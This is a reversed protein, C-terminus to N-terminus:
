TPPKEAMAETRAAQREAQKLRIEQQRHREHVELNFPDHEDLGQLGRLECHCRYCHLANGTVYYLMADFAATGLLIGIAWVGQHMFQAISSLVFGVVIITVGVRQSFDKRVYLETSPCLLCETLHEGDWVDAKLTQETNCHTCKVSTTAGRSDTARAPPVIEIRTAQDCHPCLYTLTIM